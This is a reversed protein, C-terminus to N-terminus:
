SDKSAPEPQPLDLADCLQTLYLQYNARETGTVGSWREIFSEIKPDVTKM